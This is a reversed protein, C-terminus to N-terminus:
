HSGRGFAFVPERQRDLAQRRRRRQLTEIEVDPTNRGIRDVVFLTERDGRAPKGSALGRDGEGATGGGALRHGHQRYPHIGMLIGSIEGTGGTSGWQNGAAAFEGKGRRELGAEGRRLGSRRGSQIEGDGDGRIQTRAAEGGGVGLFDEDSQRRM